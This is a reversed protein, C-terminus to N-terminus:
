QTIIWKDRESKTPYEAYSNKDQSEFVTKLMTIWFKKLPFSTSYYSFLIFPFLSLFSINTNLHGHQLWTSLIARHGYAYSDVGNEQIYRKNDFCSLSAKYIEYSNIEHKVSRITKMKHYNRECNFLANKYNEHKIDKTIVNKKIGKATKGGGGNDKIYSYM